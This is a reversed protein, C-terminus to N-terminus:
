FIYIDIYILKGMERLLKFKQVLQVYFMPNWICIDVYVLQLSYFTKLMKNICNLIEGNLSRILIFNSITWEM